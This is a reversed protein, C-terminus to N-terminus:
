PTGPLRVPFSIQLRGELMARAIWFKIRAGQATEPRRRMAARPRNVANRLTLPRLPSGQRVLLQRLQVADRLYSRQLLAFCESQNVWRARWRGWGARCASCDGRGNSAFVATSRHPSRRPTYLQIPKHPQIPILPTHGPMGWQLARARALSTDL